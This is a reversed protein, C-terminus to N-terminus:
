FLPPVGADKLIEKLLACVDSVTMGPHLRIAGFKFTSRYKPHFLRDPMDTEKWPKGDASLHPSMLYAAIVIREINDTADAEVIADRYTHISAVAENLNKNIRYKADLVILSEPGGASPQHSLTVDPNMTRSFSGRRDKTFWYEHFNRQFALSYGAGIPVVVNGAALTLNGKDPAFQFLGGVDLRPSGCCEAAARVIRLFCWLEYLDFTRQIPVQLFDGTIRAIGLNIDRYLKFFERYPAVRKYISTIVVPASTDSVEAFLPLDLLNRLRRALTRCRRVYLRQAKRLDEDDERNGALRDAVAALWLAWTGLSAKIDRHEKIDLGVTKVTKRIKVPLYGKLASPLRGPTGDEKNVRGSRFSRLIEVGTIAKAQYYPIDKELARLTRAPRRNVERVVHEIQDLRSHLFELRAIPPIQEGTGKAIGTRFSSLNFLAFTDELIERMMSDFDSRTLKRVDPDTIFEFQTRWGGSEIKVRVSGAHFGPSWRWRATTTDPSRLAELMEDDIYLNASQPTATDRLELVYNRAEQIAGAPLPPVSASPSWVPLASSEKGSEYVFLENM